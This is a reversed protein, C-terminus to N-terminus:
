KKRKEFNTDRKTTQAFTLLQAEQSRASVSSYRVRDCVCRCAIVGCQCLLAWLISYSIISLHITPLRTYHLLKTLSSFVSSQSRSSYSCSSFSCFLAFFLLFFCLFIFIYYYWISNHKNPSYIKVVATREDYIGLTVIYHSACLHATRQKWM